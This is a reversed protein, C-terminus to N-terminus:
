NCTVQSKLNQGPSPTFHKELKPILTTQVEFTQVTSTFVRKKQKGRVELRIKNFWEAFLYVSRRLVLM